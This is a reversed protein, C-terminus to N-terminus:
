FHIVAGVGAQVNNQSDSYLQTRVYDVEARISFRASVRWDAGGGLQLAFSDKSERAVQPNVHVGGVLAHAWPTLRHRSPGWSIRGGATYLAYKSTEGAFVDSGFASVVSGELAFWENLNYALDTHLGHLDASFPVSDFHVYEYGIGLEWRTGVDDSYGQPRAPSNPLAPLSPTAFARAPAPPLALEPVLNFNSASAVSQSAPQAAPGFLLLSSQAPLSASTGLVLFAALVLRKM